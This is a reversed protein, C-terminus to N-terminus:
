GRESHRPVALITELLDAHSSLEAVLEAPAELQALATRFQALTPRGETGDILKARVFDAWRAREAASLRAEDRRARLRFLLEGLRKDEFEVEPEGSDALLQAIAKAGRARDADDIFGDYLAADVDREQFQRDDVYLSAIKEDIDRHAVLQDFRESVAAMDLGLRRIDGDRLVSLPAVFPCRNLRVEKLGPRQDRDSGYLADRLRDRDWEILPAVERSLDAVIVSNRNRPHRALPVVPAVCSQERPYMRSVHLSIRRREPSLRERVKARDRLRFYYDFLRPQRARVLRAIGVTARVDSLADHANDHVIGNAASLEELRFSPLGAELPWDIGEPRLAAAARALDIVDWRSNGNHWERAYPDLLHRYFAFRIFEDDFRLNNYGVVCTNPQSLMGNIAVYAELEPMAARNVRQPTLGTVACASPDPLVDIPWHVYTSFPAGIEDLALDTRIGAFQVIRDSTPDTGTTELDYWFLTPRRRGGQPDGVFDPMETAIPDAGGASRPLM